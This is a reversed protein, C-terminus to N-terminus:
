DYGSARETTAADEDSTPQEAAGFDVEDQVTPAEPVKDRETGGSCGAAFLLIATVL